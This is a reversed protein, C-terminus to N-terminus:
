PLTKCTVIGAFALLGYKVRKIGRNKVGDGVFPALPAGRQNLQCFHRCLHQLIGQIHRILRRHLLFLTQM